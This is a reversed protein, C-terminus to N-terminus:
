TEQTRQSLLLRARRAGVVHGKQEYLCLGDRAAQYSDGGRGCVDLVEALDLMADARHSLLDTPAVLAVAARALTEAEGLDGARALIKAQVCRWIVQTVIDDGAADAATSRCLQSAEDLRGQGYVAQALM